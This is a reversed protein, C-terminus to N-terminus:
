PTFFFHQPNHPHAGVSAACTAPARLNQTVGHGNLQACDCNYIEVVSPYVIVSIDWTVLTYNIAYQAYVVFSTRPWQGYANSFILFEKAHRHM